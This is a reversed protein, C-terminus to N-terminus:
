YEESQVETCWLAHLSTKNHMCIVSYRVDAATQLATVTGAFVGTLSTQVAM